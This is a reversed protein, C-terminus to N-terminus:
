TVRVPERRGRGRLLARAATTLGHADGSTAYAYANGVPTTTEVGYTRDGSFARPLGADSDILHYAAIYDTTIEYLEVTRIRGTGTTWWRPEGAQAYWDTETEDLERTTIPALRRGQWELRAVRQHNKPFLFRFHLEVGGSLISREWEHTIATLSTTPAVGATEEVEWLASSQYREGLGARTFKRSTGTTYRAEWEHSIAYTARGPVDLPRWRRVAGSQALMTRYADNLWRLLETRPWLVGGDHLKLQCKDLTESVPPM